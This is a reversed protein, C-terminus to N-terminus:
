QMAFGRYKRYQRQIINISFGQKRTKRAKLVHIGLLLLPRERRVGFERDKRKRFAVTTESNVLDKAINNSLCKLYAKQFWRLSDEMVTSVACPQLFTTKEGLGYSVSCREEEGYKRIIQKRLSEINKSGDKGLELPGIAIQEMLLLYARQPRRSCSFSSGLYM